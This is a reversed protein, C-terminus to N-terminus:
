KIGKYNKRIRVFDGEKFMNKKIKLIKEKRKIALLESESFNKYNEKL